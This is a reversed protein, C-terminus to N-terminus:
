SVYKSNFFCKYKPSQFLFKMLRATDIGCVSKDVRSFNLKGFRYTYM